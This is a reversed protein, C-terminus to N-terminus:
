LTTGLAISGGLWSGELAVARVSDVGGQAPVIAYGSEGTVRLFLSRSLSLSLAVTFYPGTWLRVATRGSRLVSTPQASLRALGTRWGAGAVLVTPGFASRLLACPALSVSTASASTVNDSSQEGYGGDIEIGVAALPQHALWRLASASAGFTYLGSTFRRMVPGVMLERPGPAPEHAHLRREAIDAADRRAEGFVSTDGTDLDPEPALHLEIWSALVAEAIALGLLRSRLGRPQDHLNVSRTTRKGTVPDDITLLVAPDGCDARATTIGDAPKEDPVPAALETAVIRRVAAQDIDVCNDFQLRLPAPGPPTAAVALLVLLSTQM